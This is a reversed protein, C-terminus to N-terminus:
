IGCFAPTRAARAPRRCDPLLRDFFGFSPQRWQFIEIVPPIVGIAVHAGAAVIRFAAVRQAAAIGAAFCRPWDGAPGRIAKSPSPLRWPASGARPSGARNPGRSSCIASNCPRKPLLPSRQLSRQLGPSAIPPTTASLAGVLRRARQQSCPRVSSAAAASISPTSASPPCRAGRPGAVCTRFRAQIFQAAGGHLHLTVVRQVGAAFRHPPM